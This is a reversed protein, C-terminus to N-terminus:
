GVHGVGGQGAPPGGAPVFSASPGAALLAKCWGCRAPTGDAPALVKRGCAPCVALATRAMGKGLLDDLWRPINGPARRVDWPVAETLRLVEVLGHREALAVLGEAARHLEEVGWSCGRGVALLTMASAYEGTSALWLRLTSGSAWAERPARRLARGLLPGMLVQEAETLLQVVEAAAPEAQMSM